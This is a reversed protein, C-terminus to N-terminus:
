KAYRKAVIEWNIRDFAANLHDARRNRYDIYYAHEWVDLTMLLRGMPRAANSTTVIELGKDGETLWVWGSGFQGVGAKVFAEKFAEFSGWKADIGKALVGEPRGELPGLAMFYFTHNWAQAANNFLPGAEAQAVVEDLAMGEFRTGAVLENLKDVYARHHKGYHYEM